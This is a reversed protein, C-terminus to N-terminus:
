ALRRILLHITSLQLIAISNRVLTEYDRSNRRFNALWAWTREVVWRHKIVNFGKGEKEVLELDIKFTKKLSAVWAELVEGSYGGDVWLHRLRNIGNEFYHTLLTKLGERDSVNAATVEFELPIGLSDVLVHRKRGKVRKGGDIGVDLGQTRSRISQSDVCGASPDPKRGQRRREKQRLGKMIKEFLGLASWRNFYGYLTSWKGYSHPIMRWQCGTRILYFIGNVVQFLDSSPRGPLGRGSKPRPFWHRIKMWQYPTLDSSYGKKVIM